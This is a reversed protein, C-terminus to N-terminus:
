PNVRTKEVKQLAKEKRPFRVEILNSHSPLIRPEKGEQKQEMRMKAKSKARATVEM